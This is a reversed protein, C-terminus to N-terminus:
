GAGTVPPDATLFAQLTAITPDALGRTVRGIVEVHQAEVTAIKVPRIVSPAPLGAAQHDEIEIDDVWRRNEASTIMVVWLLM